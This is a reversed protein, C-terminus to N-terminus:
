APMRRPSTRAASPASACRRDPSSRGASGSCGAPSVCAPVAGVSRDRRHPSDGPLCRDVQTPHAAPARPHRGVPRLELVRRAVVERGLREGVDGAPGPDPAVIRALRAANSRWRITGASAARRRRARGTRRARRGAAPPARRAPASRPAPSPGDCPRAAPRARRARPPPASPRRSGPTPARHLVHGGLEPLGRAPELEVPRGAVLEDLAEDGPGLAAPALRDHDGEVRGQEAPARAVEVEGPQREQAPHSDGLVGAVRNEATQELFAIVPVLLRGLRARRRPAHSGEDLEGAVEGLGKEPAQPRPLRAGGDLLEDADVAPRGQGPLVQREQALARPQRDQQLPDEVGVVRAAGDVLADVPDHDGVVAAALDVAGDGGEVREGADGGGDVAPHRDEEVRPDAGAGVDELRDREAGVGHEDAAGVDVAERDRALRANALHDLVEEGLEVEGEAEGAM